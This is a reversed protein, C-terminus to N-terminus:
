LFRSIVYLIAGGFILALYLSLTRNVTPSEEGVSGVHRGTVLGMVAAYLHFGFLVLVIVVGVATLVYGIIEM